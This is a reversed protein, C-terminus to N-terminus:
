PQGFICPTPACLKKQQQGGWFICTTYKYVNTNAKEWRDVEDEEEVDCEECCYIGTSSTAMDQAEQPSGTCIEVYESM